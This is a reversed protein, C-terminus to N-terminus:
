DDKLLRLVEANETAVDQMEAIVENPFPWRVIVGDRLVALDVLVEDGATLDLRAAERHPVTIVLSHGSRRVRAHFVISVGLEEFM